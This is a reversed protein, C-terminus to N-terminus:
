NGRKLLASEALSSLLEYEGNIKLLRILVENVSKLGYRQKIGNLTFVINRDVKIVTKDPKSM